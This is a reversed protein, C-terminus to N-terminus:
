KKRGGGSRNEQRIEGHFFSTGKKPFLPAAMVMLFLLFLDSRIAPCRYRLWNLMRLAHVVRTLTISWLYVWWWGMMGDDAWRWTSVGAKCPRPHLSSATALVMTLTKQSWLSTLIHGWEKLYFFCCGVCLCNFLKKNYHQETNRKRRRRKKKKYKRGCKM